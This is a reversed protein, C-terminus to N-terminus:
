RLSHVSSPCRVFLKGPVRDNETPGPDLSSLGLSYAIPMGIVMLLLFILFMVAINM